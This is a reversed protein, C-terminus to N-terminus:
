HQTNHKNCPSTRVTYLTTFAGNAPFKYRPVQVQVSIIAVLLSSEYYKYLQSKIGSSPADMDRKLVEPAHETDELREMLECKSAKLEMVMNQLRVCM